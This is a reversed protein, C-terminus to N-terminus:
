YFISHFGQELNEHPRFIAGPLTPVRPGWQAPLIPIPTELIVPFHPEPIGMFMMMPYDGSHAQVYHHSLMTKIGQNTARFKSSWKIQNELTRRSKNVKSVCICAYVSPCAGKGNIHLSSSWFTQLIATAYPLVASVATVVGQDHLQPDGM